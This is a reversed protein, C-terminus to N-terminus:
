NANVKGDEVKFWSAGDLMAQESRTIETTTLIAQGYLCATELVKRQRTLDLESLVDDLLLVPEDKRVQKLYAAAALRLSLSLTRAQGRSSYLHMDAGNVFFKLDDRQPGCMTSGISFEKPRGSDLQRCFSRQLDDVNEPIPFTSIYEIVLKEACETLNAHNEAALISLAELAQVRRRIILSGEKVLQEDWFCLEDEKSKGERISKIIRNRPQLVRQYRQLTRLYERDVQSILIDLYRRRAVPPGIVMDLDDATFVVANLQGVLGSPTSEVGNVKIRRHVKLGRGGQKLTDAGVEESLVPRYGILIRLSSDNSHAMGDIVSPEGRLAAQWSVMERESEARFSKGISMLYIAEIISTKGQANRGHLVVLGRPLDLSMSAFNRFNTLTLGSIYM